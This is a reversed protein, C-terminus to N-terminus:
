IALDTPRSTSASLFSQIKTPAQLLLTIYIIFPMIWKSKIINYRDLTSSKLSCWGKQTQLEESAHTTPM